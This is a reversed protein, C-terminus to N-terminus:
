MQVRFGFKTGVFNGNKIAPKIVKIQEGIELLYKENKAFKSPIKISKIEGDKNIELAIFGTGELNVGYKDEIDKIRNAFWINQEDVSFQFIPREDTVVYFQEGDEFYNKAYEIVKGKQYIVIEKLQGSVYFEKKAGHEKIKYEKLKAEFEEISKYPKKAYFGIEKEIQGNDHYSIYKYTKDDELEIIESNQSYSYFSILLIFISLTIKQISKKM